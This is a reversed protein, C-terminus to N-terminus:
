DNGDPVLIVDRHPRAVVRYGYQKALWAEADGQKIKYKESLGKDEIMIVPRFKEITLAAGRLAPLEYGEIDLCILDCKAVDLDDIRLTPIISSSRKEVYGSGCNGEEEAISILGRGDGLAAQFKVINPYAYTNAALAVFNLPHPEFTYVTKFLGALYVPWVGCNGGAQIVVDLAKCHPIAKHLDITMDFVVRACHKDGAPWIFDRERRFGHYQMEVTM